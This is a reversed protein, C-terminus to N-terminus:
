NESSAEKEGIQYGVGRVTRILPRDFGADIKKRLYNIYVAVLNTPKDAELEWAKETILERPVPQFPREMLFELLEFEKQTLDIRHRGRQVTRAIRDLVLDEVKLRAEAPVARRRLLARIRATLEVFSFPKALYDDAGADLSKVCDAPIGAPALVLIILDPRRVRAQRLAHLGSEEPLSLDLIMVEFTEAELLRQAEIGNATVRVDFNEESLRGRLYEALMEDPEVVLVRM